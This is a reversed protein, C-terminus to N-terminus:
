FWAWVLVRFWLRGVEKGSPRYLFMAFSGYGAVQIGPWVLETAGANKWSWGTLFNGAEVQFLSLALVAGGTVTLALFFLQATRGLAGLSGKGIWWALVGLVLIFFWAAGDREGSVLMRQAALRLRLALLLEGWILYLLLMGKGGWVGFSKEIARLLGGDSALYGTIIGAAGFLAIGVASLAAGVIGARAASGPLLEIAPSFLAGFLLAMWQSFSLTDREM